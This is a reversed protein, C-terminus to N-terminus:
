KRAAQSAYLERAAQSRAVVVEDNGTSRPRTRNLGSRRTLVARHRAPLLQV